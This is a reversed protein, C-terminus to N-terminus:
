QTGGTKYAELTEILNEKAQAMSVLVQRCCSILFVEEEESFQGLETISIAFGATRCHEEM